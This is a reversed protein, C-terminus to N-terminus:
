GPAAPQYQVRVLAVQSPPDRGPDPAITVSRLQEGSMADLLPGRETRSVRSGDATVATLLYDADALVELTVRTVPRVDELFTVQLPVDDCRSSDAPDVATVYDAPDAEHVALQVAGECGSPTGATTPAPAVDFGLRTVKLGAPRLPPSSQTDTLFVTKPQPPVVTPSASQSASASPPTSPSASPEGSASPGTTPTAASTPTTTPQASAAAQSAEGVATTDPDVPEKADTMAKAVLLTGALVLLGVLGALSRLVGPALRPPQVVTVTQTATVDGDSATLTLPRRVDQGTWPRDAVAVVSAQASQRPHLAVAPPSFRLQVQREPDNGGLTPQLPTNGENVLTATFTARGGGRVLEPEVRLSLAPRAPVDLRIEECRSVERRHPSRALVGLVHPGADPAPTASLELTTTCEATAGPLLKVTPPDTQARAGPPLGRVEVQLHEVVDSTNRLTLGIRASEGPAVAVHEQDLDLRVTRAVQAGDWEWPVSSRRVVRTAAAQGFSRGYPSCLPTRRQM